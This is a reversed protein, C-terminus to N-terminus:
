EYRKMIRNLRIIMKDMRKCMSSETNISCRQNYRKEFLRLRKEIRIRRRDSPSSISSPTENKPQIYKICSKTDPSAIFGENCSCSENSNLSANIPCIIEMSPAENNCHPVYLNDTLDDIGSRYIKSALDYDVLNSTPVATFSKLLNEMREFSEIVAAIYGCSNEGYQKYKEYSQYSDNIVLRYANSVIDDSHCIDANRYMVSSDRWGDQCIVSGDTDAGSSCSIGGHSSCAGAGSYAYTDSLFFTTFTLSALLLTLLKNM